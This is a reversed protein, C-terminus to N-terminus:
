SIRKEQSAVSFAAFLALYFVAYVTHYRHPHTQTHMTKRRGWFDLIVLALHSITGFGNNGLLYM